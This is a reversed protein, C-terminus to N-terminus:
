KIRYVTGRKRDREAEVKLGLKAKLAGAVAGRVTHPQWGFRAAAETISIGKATRMAEIFLAQKSEKRPTPQKAKAAKAPKAAKGKAKAKAKPAAKTKGAKAAKAANQKLYEGLEQGRHDMAKRKRPAADAEDALVQSAGPTAGAINLADAKAAPKAKPERKLHAPIELSDNNNDTTM